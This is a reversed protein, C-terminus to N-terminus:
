TNRRNPASIKETERIITEEKNARNEVEPNEDQPGQVQWSQKGHKRDNIRIFEM